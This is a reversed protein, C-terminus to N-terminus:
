QVIQFIISLIISCILFLHLFIVSFSLFHLPFSSFNFNPSSPLGPFAWSPWSPRFIFSFIMFFHFNKSLAFIYHFCFLRASFFAENLDSPRRWVILKQPTFTWFVLNQFLDLDDFVWWKSLGPFSKISCFSAGYRLTFSGVILHRWKILKQPTFMWFVPNRKKWYKKFCEDNQITQPGPLRGM